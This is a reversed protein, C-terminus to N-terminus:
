AAHSWHEFGISHIGAAMVLRSSSKPILLHRAKESRFSSPRNNANRRGGGLTEPGVAYEEGAVATTRVHVGRRQDRM